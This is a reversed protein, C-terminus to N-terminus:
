GAANSTPLLEALGKLQPATGALISALTRLRKRLGPILYNRNIEAAIDGFLDNVLTQQSNPLWSNFRVVIAREGIGLRLLRLVSSKGDGFSGRLMIVAPKSVLINLALMEVFASRNLLDENWSDIPADPDRISYSPRTAGSLRIADKDIKSERAMAGRLRFVFGALLAGDALVFAELARRM